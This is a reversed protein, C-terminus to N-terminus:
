GWGKLEYSQFPDVGDMEKYPFEYRVPVPVAPAVWFTIPTGDHFKGTYKRADPYTGALVTVSETGLDTFTINMEGFPTIGMEGAPGDDRNHQSYSATYDEPPQLVGKITESYTEGLLKDTSADYYSDEVSVRGDKIKTVINDICCEPYDSITTIKLHIAPFDKFKGTSREMKIRYEWSSRPNPPMTTSSNLRYEVWHYEGYFIRVPRETAIVQVTTVPQPVTTVAAPVQPTHRAPTEKVQPVTVSQVPPASDTCGSFLVATIVLLITVKELKMKSM